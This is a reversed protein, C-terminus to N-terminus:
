HVFGKGVNVYLHFSFYQFVDFFQFLIKVEGNDIREPGDALGTDGANYKDNKIIYGGSVEPELNHSPDLKAIDVRRKSRKIKERLM